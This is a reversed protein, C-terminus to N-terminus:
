RTLSGTAAVSLSDNLPRFEYTKLVGAIHKGMEDNQVAISMVGLEDEMDEINKVMMQNRMLEINIQEKQSDTAIAMTKTLEKLQNHLMVLLQQPTVTVIEVPRENREVIVVNEGTLTDVEIINPLATTNAARAVKMALKDYDHALEVARESSLQHLDAIEGTKRFLANLESKLLTADADKMQRTRLTTNILSLVENKRKALMTELQVQNVDAPSSDVVIKDGTLASVAVGCGVTVSIALSLATLFPLFVMTKCPSRHSQSREKGIDSM